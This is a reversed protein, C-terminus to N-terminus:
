YVCVCYAIHILMPAIKNYFTPCSPTFGVYDDPQHLLSTKYIFIGLRRELLAKFAVSIVSLKLRVSSKCILTSLENSSVTSNKVTDASIDYKSVFLCLLTTSSMLQAKHSGDTPTCLISLPMSRVYMGGASCM